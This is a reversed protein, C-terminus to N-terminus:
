PFLQSEAKMNFKKWYEEYEQSNSEDITDLSTCTIITALIDELSIEVFENMETRMEMNSSNSQNKEKDIVCASIIHLQTRASPTAAKPNLLNNTFYQEYFKCTKVLKADVYLQTDMAVLHRKSILDIFLESSPVVEIRKLDFGIGDGLAKVYSEKLSWLRYFASLKEVPSTKNYIFNREVNSFKSEIVREHRNLEKQFIAEENDGPNNLRTREDIEIKMVDTGLKFYDDLDNEAKRTSNLSSIGVFIVIYDGSHSVNFDVHYPLSNMKALCLTEKIKLFPRDKATQGICLCSWEINLLNKLCYRILVRGILTQKSNCKFSFRTVKDREEKTISTLLQLWEVRNPNWSSTNFCYKLFKRM